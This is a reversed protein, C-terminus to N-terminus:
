QKAGPTAAKQKAPNSTSLQKEKDALIKNAADAVAKAANTLKENPNPQLWAFVDKPVGAARRGDVRVFYPVRDFDLYKAMLMPGMVKTLDSEDCKRQPINDTNGTLLGHIADIPTKACWTRMSPTIAGQDHPFLVLDLNVKNPDASKLFDQSEKATPSVFVRAMKPLNPNGFPIVAFQTLLNRGSINDLPLLWTKAAQDANKVPSQSWLDRIEGTILFRGNSSIFIPEHGKIQMMMVSSIPMMQVAEIEGLETLMKKVEASFDGQVKAKANPAALADTKALAEKELDVAAHAVGGLIPILLASLFALSMGQRALKNKM